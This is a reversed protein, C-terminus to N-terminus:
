QTALQEIKIASKKFLRIYFSNNQRNWHLLNQYREALM